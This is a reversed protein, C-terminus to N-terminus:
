WRRRRESPRLGRMKLRRYLASRSLGTVSIIAAVNWQHEECLAVLDDSASPRRTENAGLSVAEALASESLAGTTSLWMAREVALRLQRVNGPWAQRELYALGGDSVSRGRDAAFTAALPRIDDTRAALPPLEVVVGALRQLLDARLGQAFGSHGNTDQAASVLRFSTPRKAPEGVRSIERTELARLLKPQVDAALSCLEDLFLTGGAAAELFGATSEFAGSFSGRRHGFLLSEALERPLAACNVDVLEGPQGSLYHTLQAFLEKGVGTPGVILVPLDTPAFKEILYVARRIAGSTGIIRPRQFGTGPVRAAETM